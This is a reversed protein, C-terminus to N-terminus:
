DLSLAKSLVSVSVIEAKRKTKISEKITEAECTAPSWAFERSFFVRTTNPNGYRNMSKSVPTHDRSFLDSGFNRTHM